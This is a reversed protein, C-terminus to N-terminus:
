LQNIKYSSITIKSKGDQNIRTDILKKLSFKKLNKRILDPDSSKQEEILFSNLNKEELKYKSNELPM